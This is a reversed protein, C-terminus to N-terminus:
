PPGFYGIYGSHGESANWGFRFWKKPTMATSTTGAMWTRSASDGSSLRPHRSSRPRSLPSTPSEIKLPAHELKRIEGTDVRSSSQSNCSVPLPAAIGAAEIRCRAREQLDGARGISSRLVMMM